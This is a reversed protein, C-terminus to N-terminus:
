LKQDVFNPIPADETVFDDKVRFGDQEKLTESLNSYVSRSKDVPYIELVESREIKGLKSITQDKINRSDLFLQKLTYDTKPFSYGLLYVRKSFALKQLTSQWISSLNNNEVYIDKQIIPPLIFPSKSQAPHPPGGVPSDIHNKQDDEIEVRKQMSEISPPVITIPEGPYNGEETHSWNISGHLKLVHNYQDGYDFPDGESPVVTANPLQYVAKWNFDSGSGRYNSHAIMLLEVLNDYNFSILPVTSPSERYWHDFLDFVWSDERLAKGDLYSKLIEFSEVEKQIIAEKITKLALHYAAQNLANVERPLWPQPNRAYSLFLEIDEQFSPTFTTDPGYLYEIEDWVMRNLDDMGPMIGNTLAKSFGAGLIFCESFREDNPM